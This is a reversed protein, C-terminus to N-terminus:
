RTQLTTAHDIDEATPSTHGALDALTWAVTLTRLYGRLSIRATDLARTLPALATRGPHLQNFLIRASAGANTTVGYPTLRQAQAARAAELTAPHTTPEDTTDTTIDARSLLKGPLTHLNRGHTTLILRFAAPTHAAQAARYLHITQNHHATSISNLVTRNFTAADDLIVVGQHATALSGTGPHDLTGFIGTPSTNPRIFVVKGSNLSRGTRAAPGCDSNTILLNHDGAAAVEAPTFDTPTSM